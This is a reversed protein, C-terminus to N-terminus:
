TETINSDRWIKPKWQLKKSKEFVLGSDRFKKAM